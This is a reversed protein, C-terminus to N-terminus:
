LTNHDPPNDKALASLLRTPRNVVGSRLHKALKQLNLDNSSSIVLSRSAFCVLLGLSLSFSNIDGSLRVKAFATPIANWSSDAAIKADRSTGESGRGM